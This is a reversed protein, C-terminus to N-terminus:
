TEGYFRRLLAAAEEYESQCEKLAATIGDLCVQDDPEAVAGTEDKHAGFHQIKECADKIKILGLTASSGKLFHGLESLVRLDKKELATHMKAFTGEAQEFFGYVIGKSFDRDDDDEDMELVQEFTAPDINDGFDFEEGTEDAAPAM